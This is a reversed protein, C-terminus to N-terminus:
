KAASKGDYKVTWKDLIADRNSAIWVLDNDILQDVPDNNFGEYKSGKGNALIPYNEKYMNMADDSIAWDLFTQAALNVPQKKILANAELDWGAGEAPFVVVVPAGDKMQKIGAYGFSIGIACEGAGAMKAPKSGSHVYQDINEHLKSLFDWGADTGKGKLQLIGTVTLLGTGSSSPNSMVIHGKLEPRLLDDYSKIDSAKLGLKEIEVTNIIFATEWVDIGVWTPVPKNSKFRPLINEVGKPAYPELMDNEDLVLLSSAATGWVVDAQPNEKEALLKATIVGTSERIINVKINPYKATFDKLYAETLEDELATYVTIEGKDRDGTAKTEVNCGVLSAFMFMGLIMSLWKKM